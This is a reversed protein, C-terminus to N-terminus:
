CQCITTIENILHEFDDRLAQQDNGEIWDKQSGSGEFGDTKQLLDNLTDRAGAFDYVSLADFVSELSDIFIRRRNEKVTNNSGKFSIVNFSKLKEIADLVLQQLEEVSPESSGQNEPIGFLMSDVANEKGDSVTLTVKYTGTALDALSVISGTRANSEGDIVWSMTLTDGDIDTSLSGDLQLYEDKDLSTGAVATPSNNIHCVGDAGANYIEQIDNNTLATNYLKIEDVLGSWYSSSGTGRGIWFFSPSIANVSMTKNAVLVGDLYLRHVSGDFTMAGHHWQGDAANGAKVHDGAQTTMLQGNYSALTIASGLINQLNGYNLIYGEGFKTTQFWAEISVPAPYEPFNNAQLIKLYDDTGDLSFGNGVYAQQYSSGNM